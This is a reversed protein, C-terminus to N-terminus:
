RYISCNRTFGGSLSTNKANDYNHEKNINILPAWFFVRVEVPTVGGPGSGPADVLEAMQVIYNDSTPADSSTLSFIFTGKNITPPDYKQM